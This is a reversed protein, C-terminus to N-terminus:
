YFCIISSHPVYRQGWNRRTKGELVHICSPSFGSLEITRTYSVPSYAERAQLSSDAQQYSPKGPHHCEKWLALM